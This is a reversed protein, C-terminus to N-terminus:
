ARAARRPRPQAARERRAPLRARATKEPQAAPGAPAPLGARAAKEPQAALDTATAVTEATKTPEAAEPAATAAGTAPEPEPVEVVARGVRVKEDIRGPEVGVSLLLQARRTDGADAPLAHEEAARLVDDLHRVLRLERDPCTDRHRGPHVGVGDVAVLRDHDLSEVAVGRERQAAVVAVDLHRHHHRGALREDRARRDGGADPRVHCAHVVPREHEQEDISLLEPLDEGAPRWAVHEGRQADAGGRLGLAEVADDVLDE